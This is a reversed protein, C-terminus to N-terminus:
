FCDGIHLVILSFEDVQVDKGFRLRSRLFCSISSVSQSNIAVDGALAACGVADDLGLVM